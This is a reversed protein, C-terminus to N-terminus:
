IERMGLLYQMLLGFDISNFVGDNNVDAAWEGQPHPFKDIMGLLDMRMFGLDMSNRNCDGNVDGKPVTIKGPISKVLAETVRVLAGLHHNIRGPYNAEIFDINDNATHFIYGFKETEGGRQHNWALYLIYNIGKDRFPVHDSNYLVEGNTSTWFDINMQKAIELSEERFNEFEGDNGFVELNDGACVCDYNIMLITKDIEDQSMNNVYYKSGEMGTEEAGFAIFKVSCPTDVDKLREALELVVGVGSANDDAGRGENRSDYHAGIIIQYPSSDKKEAIVNYHKYGGNTNFEQISTSYGLKKFEDDIYDRPQIINEPGRSQIDQSLKRLHGFAMSGYENDDANVFLCSTISMVAIIIVAFGKKLYM